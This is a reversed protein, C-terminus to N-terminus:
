QMLTAHSWVIGTLSLPTFIGAQQQQYYISCDFDYFLHLPLSTSCVHLLVPHKSIYAHPLSKSIYETHITAPQYWQRAPIFHWTLSPLSFRPPPSPLSSIVPIRHSYSGLRAHSFRPLYVLISFYPLSLFIYQTSTFQCISSALRSYRHRDNASRFPWECPSLVLVTLTSHM